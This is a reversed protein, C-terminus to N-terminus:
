SFRKGQLKLNWQRVDISPAFLLRHSTWLRGVDSLDCLRGCAEPRSRMNILEAETVDTLAVCIIPFSQSIMFADASRTGEHGRVLQDGPSKSPLPVSATTAQRSSNDKKQEGTKKQKKKKKGVSVTHRHEQKDEPTQHM